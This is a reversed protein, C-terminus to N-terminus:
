ILRWIHGRVQWLLIMLMVRRKKTYQYSRKDSQQWSLKGPLLVATVCIGTQQIIGFWGCIIINELSIYNINDEGYLQMSVCSDKSELERCSQQETSPFSCSDHHFQEGSINCRHQFKPPPPPPSNVPPPPFLIQHFPIGLSFLLAPHSSSSFLVTDNGTCSFM